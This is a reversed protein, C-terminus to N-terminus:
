LSYKENSLESIINRSSAHALNSTGDSNDQNLFHSWIACDLLYDCGAKKEKGQKQFIYMLLADLELLICADYSTNELLNDVIELLNAHAEKYRTLEVLISTVVLHFQVWVVTSQLQLACCEEKAKEALYLATHLQQREKEMCTLLYLCLLQHIRGNKMCGMQEEQVTKLAATIYDYAVLFNRNEFHVEGISRLLVGKEWCPVCYLLTDKFIRINLSLFYEFNEEEFLSEHKDVGSEPDFCDDREFQFTQLLKSSEELRSEADWIYKLFCSSVVLVWRYTKWGWEKAIKLATEINERELTYLSEAQQKCTGRHLFIEDSVQEQILKCYYGLFRCKWVEYKHRFYGNKANLYELIFCYAMPYLQLRGDAHIQLVKETELTRALKEFFLNDQESWGLIYKAAQFSFTSPFISFASWAERGLFPIEILVKRYYLSLSSFHTNDQLLEEELSQVLYFDSIVNNSGSECSTKEETSFSDSSRLVNLNGFLKREDDKLADNEFSFVRPVNTSVTQEGESSEPSIRCKIVENGGGSFSLPLSSFANSSIHSPSMRTQQLLENSGSEKLTSAQQERQLQKILKKNRYAMNQRERRRLIRKKQKRQEETLESDSINIFLSPPRGPKSIGKKHNRKRRSLIRISDWTEIDEEIIPKHHSMMKRSEMQSLAALNRGDSNDITGCDMLFSPINTTSYIFPESNSSYFALRNEETALFLRMMPEQSPELSSMSMEPVFRGVHFNRERM